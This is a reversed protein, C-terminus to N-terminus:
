QTLSSLLSLYAEDSAGPTRGGLDPRMDENTRLPPTTGPKLYAALTKADAALEEENEGVLRGALAIPLGNDDAVKHKLLATEAKVARATLNAVETDHGEIKKTMTEMDNQANTLKKEYEEKLKKVDEPSLYDKFRSSVENEKQNLRKQIAKDFDEQTEIVKFDAM